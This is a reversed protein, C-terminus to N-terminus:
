TSLDSLKGKVAALVALGRPSGGALVVKRGEHGSYEISVTLDAPPLYGAGREPWEILLIADTSLLDRFGLAEIEEAGGLRYLDLHHIFRTGVPYTEILTYTPSRVVGPVGAAEILGGVLTTKGAGLQGSFTVLFAGPALSTLENALLAGLSRM